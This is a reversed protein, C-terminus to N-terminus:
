SPPACGRPGSISPDRSPGPDPPASPQTEADLLAARRGPSWGTPDALIFPSSCASAPRDRDPLVFSNLETVALPAVRDSAVTPPACYTHPSERAIAANTTRPAPHIVRLDTHISPSKNACGDKATQRSPTDAHSQEAVVHCGSALGPWRGPYLDTSIHQTGVPAARLPPPDGRWAPATRQRERREISDAGM